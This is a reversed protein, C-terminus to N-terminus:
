ATDAQSFKTLTTNSMRPWAKYKERAGIGQFRSPLLRSDGNGKPMQERTYKYLDAVPKGNWKAAFGPGVLEPAGGGKLDAGHCVGCKTQAFLVRLCAGLRRM